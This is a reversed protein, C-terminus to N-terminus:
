WYALADDYFFPTNIPEFILQIVIWSFFIIDLALKIVFGQIEFHHLHGGQMSYKRTAM